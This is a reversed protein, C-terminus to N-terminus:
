DRQASDRHRVHQVLFFSTAAYLAIIALYSNWAGFLAFPIAAMIASRRSFLWLKGPLDASGRELRLAEAFGAAALAAVM